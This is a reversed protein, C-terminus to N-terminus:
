VCSWEEFDRGDEIRSYLTVNGHDNVHMWYGRFDDEPYEQERSSIFECEEKAGGIDPSLLLCSEEVAWYTFPPNEPMSNLFEVSDNALESLIQGYDENPDGDEDEEEPIDQEPMGYHFAMSIVDLDFEECTMVNGDIYCGLQFHAM